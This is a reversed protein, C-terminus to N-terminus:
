LRDLLWLVIIALIAVMLLPRLLSLLGGILASLVEIVLLVAVLGLVIKLLMEVELAGRTDNM